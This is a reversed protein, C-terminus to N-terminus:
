IQLAFSYSKKKFLSVTPIIYCRATAGPGTTLLCAQIIKREAPNHNYFVFLIDMDNRRKRDSFGTSAAEMTILPM